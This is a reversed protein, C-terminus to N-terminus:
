FNSDRERAGASRDPEGPRRRLVGHSQPRRSRRHPRRLAVNRPHSRLRPFARPAQRLLVMTIKFDFELNCYNVVCSPSRPEPNGRSPVDNKVSQTRRQDIFFAKGETSVHFSYFIHRLSHKTILSPRLGSVNVYSPPSGHSSGVEGRKRGGRNGSEVDVVSSESLVSFPASFIM